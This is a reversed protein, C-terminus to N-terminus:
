CTLFVSGKDQKLGHMPIDSSSIPLTSDDSDYRQGKLGIIFLSWDVDWHYFHVTNVIM